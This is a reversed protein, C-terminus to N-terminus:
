ISFHRCINESTEELSGMNDFIPISHKRAEQLIIAEMTKAIGMTANTLHKVRTMTPHLFRKEYERVDSVTIICFRIRELPLYQPLLQVGDVIYDEESEMASEVLTNMVQGILECERLFKERVIAPDSSEHHGWKRIVEHDPLLTKMTKTVAGLGARQHINLRISLHHALTTKGVGHIGGLVLILPSVREIKESANGDM